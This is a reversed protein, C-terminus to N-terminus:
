VTATNVHFDVLDRNLFDSLSLISYCFMSIILNIYELNTYM